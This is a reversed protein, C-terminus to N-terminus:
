LKLEEITMQLSSIQNSKRGDAGSWRNFFTAEFLTVICISVSNREATGSQTLEFFEALVVVQALKSVQEDGYKGM